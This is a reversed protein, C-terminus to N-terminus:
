YRYSDLADALAEELSGLWPSYNRWQLLGDHFIPQRVQESSATSVSRETKHFEISAQEFDLGCFTLMRRVSGPLDNVVDEYHMRFIRGPLVSDWHRMLELYTRYYRAINDIGYTFDQGSAFLQKFNSFCCAMPERRVDIIKANPLMLHILGIHRFNNPMKDIFFAKGNRYVRTDSLYREGLGRFDDSTLEALVGPYRPDCADPREGNLEQVIRPIDFLEQTGEVRSHSALIQEILTSGARPLGVIFIPDSSSAGVGTRTVFFDATCSEIQRRTNIETFEPRYRSQALKLANGREYYQWSRAFEGRDEFAKGLAFCLHYRDVRQTSPAAEEVCARVIEEPSFRNIKLNALCWYADGFSPASEVAAHYSAVAEHQRGVAKLSHGLLVQLQPSDPSAALLERYLVIAREHEQLGACVCAQLLLYTPNVRELKLLHSTQARALLYKQQDILVRAYDARAARYGPSLEVVAKLLQEADDLAGRQQGIRALLRLAEVHERHLRLYARLINEAATLKGESFLSAAQVIEHPQRALISAQEAATAASKADGTMRYLRELMSWSMTLAPNMDVARRFADTARRTDPLSMYCHGREEYLRGFRPHQQELRELSALADAIRGQCRENVATVYLAEPGPTIPPALQAVPSKV